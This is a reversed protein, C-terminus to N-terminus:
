RTNCKLMYTFHKEADKWSDWLRSSYLTKRATTGIRDVIVIEGEGLTM